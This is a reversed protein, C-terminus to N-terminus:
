SLFGYAEMPHNGLLKEQQFLYGRSLKALVMESSSILVQSPAKCFSVRLRRWWLNCTGLAWWVDIGRSDVRSAVRDRADMHREISCLRCSSKKSNCVIRRVELLWLLLISLSAIGCPFGVLGVHAGQGIILTVKVKNECCLTTFFRYMIGNCHHVKNITMWQIM